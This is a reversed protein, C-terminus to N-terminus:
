RFRSLCFFLCNFILKSWDFSKKGIEGKCEVLIIQESDTSYDSIKEILSKDVLLTGIYLELRYSDIKDQENNITTKLIFNTKDVIQKTRKFKIDIGNLDFIPSVLLKEVDLCSLNTLKYVISFISILVMSKNSYFRQEVVINMEMKM